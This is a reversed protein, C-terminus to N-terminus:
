CGTDRAVLQMGLIQHATPPNPPCDPDPSERPTPILLIRPCGPHLTSASPRRSGPSVVRGALADHCGGHGEWFRPPIRAVHGAEGGAGTVLAPDPRQEAHSQEEVVPPDGHQEQGVDKHQARVLHIGVQLDVTCWM